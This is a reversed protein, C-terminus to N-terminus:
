GLLRRITRGLRSASDNGHEEFKAAMEHAALVKDVGSLSPDIKAPGSKPQANDIEISSKQAIMRRAHKPKNAGYNPNLGLGRDFGGGAALHMAEMREWPEQKRGLSQGGVGANTSRINTAPVQLRSGPNLNALHNESWLEQRRDVQPLGAGVPPLAM